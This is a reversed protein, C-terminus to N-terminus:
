AYVGETQRVASAIRESVQEALEEIDTDSDLREVTINFSFTQSITKTNAEDRDTRFPSGTGSERKAKRYEEAESATM